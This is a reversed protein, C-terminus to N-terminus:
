MCRCGTTTVQSFSFPWRSSKRIRNRHLETMLPPRNLKNNLNINGTFTVWHLPTENFLGGPTNVDAGQKVLSIAKDDEGQRIAKVFEENLKKQEPSIKAM